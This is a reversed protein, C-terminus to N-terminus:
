QAVDLDDGLVAQLDLGLLLLDAESPLAQLQCVGEKGLPQQPLVRVLVLLLLPAVHVTEVLLVHQQLHDPFPGVRPHVAALISLGLFHVCNLHDGHVLLVDEFELLVEEADFLQSVGADDFVVCEVEVEMFADGVEDHFM